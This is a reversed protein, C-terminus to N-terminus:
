FKFLFDLFSDKKSIEKNTKYLLQRKDEPLKSSKILAKESGVADKYTSNLSQIFNKRLLTLHSKAYKKNKSIIENLELSTFEGNQQLWIYKLETKWLEQYKIRTFIGQRLHTLIVM